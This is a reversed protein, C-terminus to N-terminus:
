SSGLTELLISLFSGKQEKTENKITKKVAKKFLDSEELLQVIKIMDNREENSTILPIMGSEFTKMHIAEGRAAAKIKVTNFVIKALRKLANKMLLFGSELLSRLRRGIFGGSQAITHM